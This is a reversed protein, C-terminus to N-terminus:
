RPRTPNSRPPQRDRDRRLSREPAVPEVGFAADVPLGRGCEEVRMRECAALATEGLTTREDDVGTAEGAARRLVLEDDALGTGFIADPPALDVLRQGLLVELVEACFDDGVEVRPVDVDHVREGGGVGRV